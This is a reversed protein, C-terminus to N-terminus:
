SPGNVRATLEPLPFRAKIRENRSVSLVLSYIYTSLCLPTFICLHVNTCKHINITMYTGHCVTVQSLGFLWCFQDFLEFLGFIYHFLLAFQAFLWFEDVNLARLIFFSIILRMRM